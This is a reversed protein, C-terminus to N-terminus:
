QLSATPRVVEDARAPVAATEGPHRIMLTVEGADAVHDGSWCGAAVGVALLGPELRLDAASYTRAEDGGMGLTLNSILRYHRSGLRVLCNAPQLSSRALLMSFGYVGAIRIVVEARATGVFLGPQPDAALIQGLPITPATVTFARLTVAKIDPDMAADVTMPEIAGRWGPAYGVLGGAGDTPPVPGDSAETLVRSGGQAVPRHWTAWPADGNADPSRTSAQLAALAAAALACGLLPPPGLLVAWRYGPDRRWLTRHVFALKGWVSM